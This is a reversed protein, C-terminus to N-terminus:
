PQAADIRLNAFHARTGDGVWLGIAGRTNARRLDDITLVPIGDVLARLNSGDIELRLNYWRGLAVNAAKEYHAPREVRSEPFHFGPHAIYQVARVNRPAPPPPTNATGNAMRLYIAEFAEGDDTLHFAIGAFGRADKGGRGNIEAAINVEIVGNAFPIDFVAFTPRNGGAGALQASQEYDSLEIRLAPRKAHVAPRATVGSLGDPQEIGHPPGQDALAVGANLLFVLSASIAVRRSLMPVVGSGNMLLSFATNRM